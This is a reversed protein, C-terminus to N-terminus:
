WASTTSILALQLMACMKDRGNTTQMIAAVSDVKEAFFNDVKRIKLDKIFEAAMSGASEVRKLVNSTKM